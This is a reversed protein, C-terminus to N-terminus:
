EGAGVEKIKLAVREMAMGRSGKVIFISPGHDNFLVPDESGIWDLLKDVDAFYMVRDRPMGKDIAGEAIFTALRGACVLLDMGTEAAKAGVERHYDKEDVGLEFMDGLIAVGRSEGKVDALFDLAAAMSAPNANYTDDVLIDGGVREVYLRGPVPLAKKVGTSILGPEVGIALAAAVACLINKANVRGALGSELFIEEKGTHVLLKIGGPSLETSVARVVRSAKAREASDAAEKADKEMTFGIINKLGTEMAARVCLEDDLNLVAVGDAPMMKWLESKEKYVDELSGLGQLHAPLIATIIGAEPAAIECLRRIEGPTNMGMELVGWEHGKDAHLLSLPLGILNNFNGPTSLTHFKQSMISALIEKVSTKGCSGTVGAVHVGTKRGHWAAYDGLAELTDSVSVLFQGESVYPILAEADDKRVVVGAAGRKLVAAAFDAGKFREGDLAWFLEGAKIKRSDTSIGKFSSNLSGTVLRGGTAAVVHSSRTLSCINNFVMKNHVARRSIAREVEEMDDFHYRKSGRIQYNEHGKGAVLVVDGGQAMSVAKEIAERREVVSHIEAKSDSPVGKKMEEIISAPSESRPNDSTLILVDAYKSAVKGMMPRKGRDRDGGCGAVCILKGRRSSRDHPNDLSGRLSVLVTELADPTHAYDVFAHFPAAGKVPQLRGPVTEVAKVGAMIRGTPIGSGVAGAVAALINMVNHRGSLHSVLFFPGDPTSVKMNIGDIGSNWWLPYVDASSSIGYSIRRGSIMKWLRKGHPDDINIVSLRPSLETFLRAKSHFYAEMDQHYDLHDRSLNTFIAVTVSCGSVRGQSLAHSSVELAVRGVGKDQMEALLGHLKIVDPTTLAAPESWGPMRQEITGIVGPTHGASRFIGELLYTITTKGNTGTVAWLEFGPRFSRLLIRAIKGAARAPDSVRCLPLDHRRVENCGKRECLIVSAGKKVADRAYEMGDAKEGRIAVFIDGPMIDRSDIKIGSVKIDGYLELGESRIGAKEIIEKLLPM